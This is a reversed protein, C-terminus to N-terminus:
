LAIVVLADTVVIGLFLPLAYGLALVSAKALTIGVTERGATRAAITASPEHPLRTLTVTM